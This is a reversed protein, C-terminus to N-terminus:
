LEETGKENEIVFDQKGSRVKGTCNVIRVEGDTKGSQRSKDFASELTDGSQEDIVGRACDLMIKLSNYSTDM